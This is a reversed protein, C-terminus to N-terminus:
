VSVSCVDLHHTTMSTSHHPTATMVPSPYPPLALEEVVSLSAHVM